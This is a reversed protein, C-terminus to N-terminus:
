LGILFERKEKVLSSSIVSDQKVFIFHGLPVKVHKSQNQKAEIKNIDMNRFDKKTLFLDSFGCITLYITDSVPPVIRAGYYSFDTENNDWFQEMRHTKDNVSDGLCFWIGNLRNHDLIEEFQNKRFTLGFFYLNDYTYIDTWPLFFQFYGETTRSATYLYAEKVVFSLDRLSDKIVVTDSVSKYTWLNLGEDIIEKKSDYHMDFPHFFLSLIVTKKLFLILFFVILITLCGKRRM